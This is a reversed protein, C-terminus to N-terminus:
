KASVMKIQAELEPNTTLLKDIFACASSDRKFWRIYVTGNGDYWRVFTTFNEQKRKKRPPVYPLQQITVNMAM